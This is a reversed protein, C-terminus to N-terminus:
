GGPNELSRTISETLDAADNDSLSGANWIVRFAKTATVRSLKYRPILHFHVHMVAQGAAAGNNQLVNIGVCGTAAKVARVM